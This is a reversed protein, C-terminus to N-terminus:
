SVPLMGDAARPTRDRARAPKGAPRAPERGDARALMAGLALGLLCGCVWLVSLAILLFLLMLGTMPLNRHQKVPEVFTRAPPAVPDDAARRAPHAQAAVQDRHEDDPHLREVDGNGDERRHEGHRAARDPPLGGMFGKFVHSRASTALAGPAELHHGPLRISEEIFYDGRPTPTSPKGVIAKFARELRGERYALVRRTRLDIVLHWTTSSLQTDTATIWGTPPPTKRDFVYGPLRVRLWRRGHRRDDPELVPLSTRVLTLPRQDVVGAVTPSDIEPRPHVTKNNLLNM